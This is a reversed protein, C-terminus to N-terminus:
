IRFAIVSVDDRRNESGQYDLLTRRLHDRQKAIPEGNLSLLMKKFRRKGFMRRREGGVQELFGDSSMCFTMGPELDIETEEYKQTAPIGSNTTLSSWTVSILAVRLPM